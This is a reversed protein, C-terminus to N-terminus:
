FLIFLSLVVFGSRYWYLNFVSNSIFDCFSQWVSQYQGFTSLTWDKFLILASERFSFRIPFLWLKWCLLLILRSSECSVSDRGVLLSFKSVMLDLCLEARSQLALFWDCNVWKSCDDTSAGWCPFTFCFRRFWICLLSSTYWKGFIGMFPSPMWVVALPDLVPPVYFSPSADEETHVFSNHCRLTLCIWRFSGRVLMWVSIM